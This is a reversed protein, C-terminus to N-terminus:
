AKSRRTRSLISQSLLILACVLIAAGTVRATWEVYYQAMCVMSYRSVEDDSWRLPYFNYRLVNLGLWIPAMSFFLHFISWFISYLHNRANRKRIDFSHAILAFCLLSLSARDIEHSIIWSLFGTGNELYRFNIMVCLEVLPLTFFLILSWYNRWCSKMQIM